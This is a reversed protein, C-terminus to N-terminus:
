KSQVLQLQVKRREANSRVYIYFKGIQEHFKYGASIATLMEDTWGTMPNFQRGDNNSEAKIIPATLIIMDYKQETITRLFPEQNWRNEKALQAMIFPQYFVEKNTYILFTPDDSLVPGDTQAVQSHVYTYAKDSPPIPVLNMTIPSGGGFFRERPVFVSVGHAVLCFYLVALSGILLQYKRPFERQHPLEKCILGVLLAILLSIALHFELFYNVASGVKAASVTSVLAFITFYVVMPLARSRPRHTAPDIELPAKGRVRKLIIASVFAVPITIYIVPTFVFEGFSLFRLFADFDFKNQNYEVLHLWLQGSTQQNWLYLMFGCIASTGAALILALKKENLWLLGFFAAAPAVVQTQKTLFALSFFICGLFIGLFRHKNAVAALGALGFAIAPIDVRAYAVWDRFGYYGLFLFAALLGPYVSGSEEYLFALLVAFILTASLFVLFRGLPLSPQQVPFLSSIAAPYIPPYNGVLFPAESVPQYISEGRAILLAQNLLFGEERDLTYDFHIADSSRQLSVSLGPYLLILIPILILYCLPTTQYIQQWINPKKSGPLRPPKQLPRGHSPVLEDERIVDVPIASPSEEPYAPVLEGKNPHQNPQNPEANEPLNM